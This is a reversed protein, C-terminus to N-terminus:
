GEIVVGYMDEYDEKKVFSLYTINLDKTIEKVFDESVIAMHGNETIFECEANDYVYYKCQEKKNIKNDM